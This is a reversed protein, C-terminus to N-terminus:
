EKVISEFYYKDNVKNFTLKYTDYKDWSIMSSDKKTTEVVEFLDYDKYFDYKDENDKGAPTGFAIKDYIYLKDDEKQAKVVKDVIVDRLPNDHCVYFIFIYENNVYVRYKKHVYFKANVREDDVKIYNDDLNNNIDDLTLKQGLYVKALANNVEDISFSTLKGEEDCMSQILSSDINQIATALLENKAIDKINFNSFLKDNNVYIHYFDNIAEKVDESEISLENSPTIVNSNNNSTNKGKYGLIFIVLLIVIVIGIVLLLNKKNGLNM